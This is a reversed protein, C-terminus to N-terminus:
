RARKDEVRIHLNQRACLLFERLIKRMGAPNFMIQFLDPLGNQVGTLLRHGRGPHLGRIKGPDPDGVLAFCGNDPVFRRALGDMVRNDPLVTAGCRDTFRQARAPM